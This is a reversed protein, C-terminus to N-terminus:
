RKVQFRGDGSHLFRLVCHAENSEEYQVEMHGLTIRWKGEFVSIRLSDESAAVNTNAPKGYMNQKTWVVNPFNISVFIVPQVTWDTM